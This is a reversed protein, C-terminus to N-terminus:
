ENIVFFGSLILLIGTIKNLSIKLSNFYIDYVTTILIGMGCWFTYALSLSYKSLCKPFLYFSIGYGIFAPIFFLKETKTQNLCLTSAIETFVSLLLYVDESSFTEEKYNEIDYNM